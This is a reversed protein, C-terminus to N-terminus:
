RDPDDPAPPAGVQKQLRALSRTTLKRISSPNYGLRRAVEATDLGVGFRLWLAARHRKGVGRTLSNLDLGIERQEQEPAQAPSLEVLVLPEVPVLRDKHIKKWYNSCKVRLAGLIWAEKHRITDWKGIAVLLADQLLDEADQLPIDYSRLLKKIQPRVRELHEELTDLSSEPPPLPQNQTV